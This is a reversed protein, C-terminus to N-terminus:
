VGAKVSPMQVWVAHVCPTSLTVRLRGVSVLTDVQARTLCVPVRSLNFQWGCAECEVLRGRTYELRRVGCQPCSAYLRM